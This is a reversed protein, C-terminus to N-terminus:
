DEIGFLRAANNWFIDEVEADGLREGWCAWKISRLHELGIALPRITQHKEEWVPTEEGLWLFTDAVGVSRGRGHCVPLDTGYM